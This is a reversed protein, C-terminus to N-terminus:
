FATVMHSHSSSVPTNFIQFQNNQFHWVVGQNNIIYVNSNTYKELWRCWAMFLNFANKNSPLELLEPQVLIINQFYFKHMTLVIDKNLYWAAIQLSEEWDLGDGTASLYHSLIQNGNEVTNMNMSCNKHGRIQYCANKVESETPIRGLTKHLAYKVNKYMEEGKYRNVYYNPNSTKRLVRDAIQHLTYFPYENVVNPNQKRRSVLCTSGNIYKAFNQAYYISQM